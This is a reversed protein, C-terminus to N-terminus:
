GNRHSRRRWLTILGEPNRTPGHGRVPAAIAESNPLQIGPIPHPARCVRAFGGERPAVKVPPEDAVVATLRPDEVTDGVTRAAIRQHADFTRWLLAGDTPTEPTPRVVERQSTRPVRSGVRCEVSELVLASM